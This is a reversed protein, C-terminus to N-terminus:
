INTYPVTEKHRIGLLWYSRLKAGVNMCVRTSIVLSAPYCEKIHVCDLHISLVICQKKKAYCNSCLEATANSRWVFKAVPYGNQLM